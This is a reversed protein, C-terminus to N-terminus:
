GDAVPGACSLFLVGALSRHELAPGRLWSITYLSKVGWFMSNYLDCTLDPIDTVNGIGHTVSSRVRACLPDLPKGVSASYTALKTFTLISTTTFM